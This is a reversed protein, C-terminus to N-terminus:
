TTCFDALEQVYSKAITIEQCMSTGDKKKGSSETHNKMYDLFKQINDAMEEASHHCDWENCTPCKCGRGYDVPKGDNRKQPYGIM